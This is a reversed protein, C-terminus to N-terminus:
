RNDQREKTGSALNIRRELLSNPPHDAFSLLVKLVAISEEPSSALLWPLYQLALAEPVRNQDLMLATARHIAVAAPGGEGAIAMDGEETPAEELSGEAIGQVMCRWQHDMAEQAFADAYLGKMIALILM